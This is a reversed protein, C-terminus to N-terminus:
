QRGDKGKLRKISLQIGQYIMQGFNNCSKAFGVRMIKYIPQFINKHM